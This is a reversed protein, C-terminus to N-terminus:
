PLTIETTEKFPILADVQTIIGGLGHVAADIEHRLQLLDDTAFSADASIKVMNEIFADFTRLKGLVDKLIDSLLVLLGEHGLLGQEAKLVLSGAHSFIEAVQGTIRQTDKMAAHLAEVSARDDIVMDLLSAKQAMTASITELNALIGNIHKLSDVLSATMRNVNGAIDDVKAVIPQLSRIMENIDSSVSIEPIQESTLPPSELNETLVIIRPTGILRIDLIFDSDSRVWQAHRESIGITILVNGQDDLELQDVKGINFGSFVVPMGQTLNDGSDSLLTFSNVSEFVGKQYAVYGLTLVILVCVGIVFLGVKIENKYAM